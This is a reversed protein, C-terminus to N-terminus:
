AKCLEWKLIILKVILLHLHTDIIMYQIQDGDGAPRFALYQDDILVYYNGFYPYINTKNVDIIIVGFANDIDIINSMYIYIM